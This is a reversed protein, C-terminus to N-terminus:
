GPNWFEGFLRKAAACYATHADEPADFYGLWVQRRFHTIRARYRGKEPSWSVGKFGSQNKPQLSQNWCNQNHTAARLNGIRNNTTDTDWHDVQLPETGYYMKWIVQHASTNYGAFRIFIYGRPQPSGAIKGAWKANWIRQLHLSSKRGSPPFHYAPREKWRLAGSDPDHEFCERLYVQDPLINTAM